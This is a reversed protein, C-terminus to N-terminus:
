GAAPLTFVFRSGKGAESEVWIRGRNIEVFEKCLILGLGTGTENATGEESVKKTISFLNRLKEPSMGIGDDEVSTEIFDDNKVAQIKIEGGPNTYKIANAVLNRLVTSVSNEDAIALTNEGIKQVLKIDKNKASSALQETVEEAMNFLDTKEFQYQIKGTQIQAWNLLGEVLAYVNSASKRLEIILKKTQGSPLEGFNESLIETIGLIGNFPSRLDHAILAFFKDKEANAQKLEKESKELRASLKKLSIRSRAIFFLIGLIFIGSIILGKTKMTQQRITIEQIENRQKLFLNERSQQETYYRIQLDNFKALKDANFLSDRLGTAKILLTYAKGTDGEAEALKSLAFLNDQQLLVYNNEIAAFYSRNLHEEALGSEDLDLYIKGLNHNALALRNKNNIRRAYDLAEQYYHLASDQKGVQRYADGFFSSFYSNVRNHEDMKVLFSYGTRYNSLALDYKQLKKYCNGINSYSYAIEYLTGAKSAASLAREHWDLAESFLRWDQYIMGINNLIKSIGSQDNLAKRIALAHQYYILAENSNGIWYSAVGMNNYVRGLMVSDNLAEFIASAKQFYELANTNDGMRHYIMGITKLLSGKLSDEKAYQLAASYYNASKALDTAEMTFGLEQLIKVKASDEQVTKLLKRLNDETSNAVVVSNLLSCILVIFLVFEYVRLHM